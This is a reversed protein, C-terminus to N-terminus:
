FSRTEGAEFAKSSSRTLLGSPLCQEIFERKHVGPSGDVLEQVLAWEPSAPTIQATNM